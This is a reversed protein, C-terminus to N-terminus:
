KISWKSMVERIKGRRNALWEAIKLRADLDLNWGPEDPVDAVATLLEHESVNEIREVTVRALRADRGVDDAVGSVSVGQADVSSSAVDLADGHDISLLKGTKFQILAQADGAGIWARFAIVRARSAANLSDPNFVGGQALFTPLDKTNVTDPVAVFGM